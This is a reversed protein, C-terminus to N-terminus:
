PPLGASPRSPPGHRRAQYIIVDLVGGVNRYVDTNTVRLTRWGRSRLYGDRIRDHRMEDASMHTAGDVEVVLRASMCAFDGIYPGIPHQRRFRLGTVAERRLYSWLIVEAETMQKRLAKAFRQSRLEHERFQRAM